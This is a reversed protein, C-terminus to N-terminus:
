FTLEGAQAGAQGKACASSSLQSAAGRLGLAVGSLALGIMWVEVARRVLARESERSRESSSSHARSPSASPSPSSSPPASSISESSIKPASSHRQNTPDPLQHASPPCIQDPGDRIRLVRKRELLQCDDRRRLNRDSLASPRVNEDLKRRRDRM